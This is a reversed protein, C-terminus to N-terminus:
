LDDLSDDESYNASFGMRDSALGDLGGNLHLTGGARKSRELLDDWKDDKEKDSLAVFNRPQHSVESRPLRSSSSSSTLKTFTPLAASSTRPRSSSSITRKRIHDNSVKDSPIGFGFSKRMARRSSSSDGDAKTQEQTMILEQSGSISPTSPAMPLTPKALSSARTTISSTSSASAMRQPSKSPISPPSSLPSFSSDGSLGGDASYTSSSGVSAPPIFKGSSKSPRSGSSLLAQTNPNAESPHVPHKTPSSPRRVDYANPRRPVPLSFSPKEEKPTPVIMWEETSSSKPQTQLKLNIQSRSHSISPTTTNSSSSLSHPYKVSTSSTMPPTQSDDNNRELDLHLQLLQSPPLIHQQLHAPKGATVTPVPPIQEGYSSTSSRQSQSRNFFKSSGIDSSSIPSSSRTATGPRTSASTPTELSTNVRVPTKLSTASTKAEPSQITTSTANRKHLVETVDTSAKRNSSKSYMSLDKPLAPVPPPPPPPLPSTPLGTGNDRYSDRLGGTSIRRMLNWLKNKNGSSSTVSTPSPQPSAMLKSKFLPSRIDSGQTRQSTPNMKPSPPGGQTGYDDMSLRLSRKDGRLKSTVGEKVPLMQREQLDPLVSEHLATSLPSGIDLSPGRKPVGLRGSMKRSLTKGIGIGFGTSSKPSTKGVSVSTSRQNSPRPSENQPSGSPQNLELGVGMSSSIGEVLNSTSWSFDPFFSDEIRIGEAAVVRKSSGLVTYYPQSPEEDFSQVEQSPVKDPRSPSQNASAHENTVITTNSSSASSSQHHPGTQMPMIEKSPKPNSPLTSPSVKDNQQSVSVSARENMIRQQRDREEKHWLERERQKERARESREIERIKEREQQQKYALMVEKAPTTGYSVSASDNPVIGQKLLASPPILSRRKDQPAPSSGRSSPHGSPPPMLSGSSSMQRPAPSISGTYAPAFSSYPFEKMPVEPPPVVSATSPRRKLVNKAKKEAKNSAGERERSRSWSASRVLGGFGSREKAGSSDTSQSTTPRSHSLNREQLLRREAEWESKRARDRERNIGLTTSLGEADSEFARERSFAEIRQKEITEEIREIRRVPRSNKIAGGESESASSNGAPAPKSLLRKLNVTPPHIPSPGPPSYAHTNPGSFDGPLGFPSSPSVSSLPSHPAYRQGSSQPSSHSPSVTHPSLFKADMTNSLESPHKHTTTEAIPSTSRYVMPKDPHLPTPYSESPISVATIKSSTRVVSVNGDKTQQPSTDKATSPARSSGTIVRTSPSVHSATTSKAKSHTTVPLSVRSTSGSSRSANNKRDLDQSPPLESRLVSSSISTRLFRIATDAGVSESSLPLPQSPLSSQLMSPLHTPQHATSSTPSASSTTHESSLSSSQRHPLLSIGPVTQSKSQAAPSSPGPSITKVTGVSFHSLTSGISSASQSRDGSSGEALSNRSKPVMNFGFVSGYGSKVRDVTSPSSGGPDFSADPNVPSDEWVSKLMDADGTSLPLNSTANSINSELNQSPANQNSRTSPVKRKQIAEPRWERTSILSDRRTSGDTSKKSTISASSVLNPGTLSRSRPTPRPSPTLSNPSRPVVSSGSSLNVSRTNAPSGAHSKVSPNISSLTRARSSLGTSLTPSTTSIARPRAIRSPSAVTPSRTSPLKTPTPSSTLRPTYKPTAISSTSRSTSSQALRPVTSSPAISSATSQLSTKRTSAPSPMAINSELSESESRVRQSSPVGAQGPASTRTRSVKMRANNPPGSAM